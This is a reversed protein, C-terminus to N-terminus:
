ETHSVLNSVGLSGFLSDDFIAYIEVDKLDVQVNLNGTQRQDYRVPNSLPPSPQPAATSAPTPATSPKLPAGAPASDVVLLASMLILLLFAMTGASGAFLQRPRKAQREPPWALGSPFPPSLSPLPSVQFVTFYPADLSPTSYDYQSGLLSSRVDSSVSQTAFM